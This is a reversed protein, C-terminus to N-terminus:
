LISIFVFVLKTSRYSGVIFSTPLHKKRHKQLFFLLGEGDETM